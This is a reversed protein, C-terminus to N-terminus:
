NLSPKNGSSNKALKICDDHTMLGNKKLVEAVAKSAEQEQKKADINDLLDKNEQMIREVACQLIDTTILVQMDDLGTREIFALEAEDSALIELGHQLKRRLMENPVSKEEDTMEPEFGPAIFDSWQELLPLSLEKNENYMTFLEFYATLHENEKIKEKKKKRAFM